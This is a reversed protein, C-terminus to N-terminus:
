RDEDDAPMANLHAISWWFDDCGVLAAESFLRCPVMAVVVVWVARVGGPCHEVNQVYM